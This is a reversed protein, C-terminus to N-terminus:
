DSMCRVEEDLSSAKLFFEVLRFCTQRMDSDDLNQALSQLERAIQTAQERHIRPGSYFEEWLWNLLPYDSDGNVLKLIEEEDYDIKERLKGAFMDFAM